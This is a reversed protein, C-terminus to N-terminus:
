GPSVDECHLLHLQMTISSLNTNLLVQAEQPNMGFERRQDWKLIQDTGLILKIFELTVEKTISCSMFYQVNKIDPNNRNWFGWALSVHEDTYM